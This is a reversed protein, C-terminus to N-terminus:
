LALKKLNKISLYGVYKKDEIVNISKDLARALPEIIIKVNSILDNVNYINDIDVEFKDDIHSAANFPSAKDKFTFQKYFESQKAQKVADAQSDAVILLKYHFEEFSGQQYGGLNIFFLKLDNACEAQINSEVLKIAYNDVKSIARYSDIHWKNKVEPWHNNIDAILENVQNAVGFFIDHQEILRGKPRGGLQIMYLTPM